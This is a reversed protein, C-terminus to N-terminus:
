RAAAKVTRYRNENSDERHTDHSTSMASRLALAAVGLVAAGLVIAAPNIVAGARPPVHVVGTYDAVAPFPVYRGSEPMVEDFHEALAHLAQRMPAGSLVRGHGTALVDPELAAIAEVSRRAANWDPTYYAPPRWVVQRQTLVHLISEQKTTVVADGAILTRDAARFLSVHGPTHGATCLWQWDSLGPVVGNEPLMHLRTGLDIPTPSFMPSFLPMLGGDVTPDPPPYSSRGSLYPLEMPHAYVPAGWADALLPLGGVHDRHGHTLVIASPGRTFLREAERRIVGAYGALGTDVLVWPSADGTHEAVFYVNVMLTRLRYVGRTIHEARGM